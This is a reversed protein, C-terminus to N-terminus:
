TTNRAKEKSYHYIKTSNDEYVKEIFPSDGAYQLEKIGYVQQIRQNIIIYSLNYKDLIERANTEFRASYIKDYEELREKPDKVAIFSNTIFVKRKAYYYSGYGQNFDVVIRSNEPTNEKIYELAGEMNAMEKNRSSNIGFSAAPIISALLFLVILSSYIIKHYKAFKSRKIAFKLQNLFVAFQAAFLVGLISVGLQWPIIKLWLLLLTSLVIATTLHQKKIEKGHALTSYIIWIGYLMPFVGLGYSIELLNFDSYLIQQAKTPINLWLIKRGLGFFFTNYIILVSFLYLSSAFSFLENETPNTKKKEIYKLVLNLFMGIVLLVAAPTTACLLIFVIYFYVSSKKDRLAKLYQSTALLTLALIFPLKGAMNTSSLWLIPVFGGLIASLTATSRNKQLEKALIYIFFPISALVVSNLINSGMMEGFLIIFLALIYEFLPPFFSTRGNVIEKNTFDPIGKESIHKAQILYKYAADGAYFNDKNGMGMALSFIVVSTLLVILVSITKKM